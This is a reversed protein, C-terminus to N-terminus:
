PCGTTPYTITSGRVQYCRSVTPCGTRAISLTASYWFYNPTVNFRATAGVALPATLTLTFTFKANRAMSGSSTTTATVGVFSGITFGGGPDSDNRVVFTLVTGSPIPTTGNNRISVTNTTSTGTVTIGASTM